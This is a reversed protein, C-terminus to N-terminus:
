AVHVFTMAGQMQACTMTQSCVESIQGPCGHVSYCDAFGQMRIKHRVM